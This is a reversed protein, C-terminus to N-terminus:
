LPASEHAHECATESCITFGTVGPRCAFVSGALPQDPWERQAGGRRISTIYLTDLRDGGFACMSPSRVPLTISRDIAGDPTFRVVMWGDVM